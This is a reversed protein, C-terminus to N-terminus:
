RYEIQRMHEAVRRRQGHADVMHVVHRTWRGRADLEVEYEVAQPSDPCPGPADARSSTISTPLGSAHYRYENVCRVSPGRSEVQRVARGQADYETRTQTDQGRFQEARLVPHTPEPWQLLEDSNRVEFTRVWVNRYMGDKSMGTATITHIARRSDPYEITTTTRDVLDRSAVRVPRGKADYRTQSLQLPGRRVTARERTGDRRYQMRHVTDSDGHTEIREVERGAADYRWRTRQTAVGASRVEESLRGHPDYQRLLAPRDFGDEDVRVLRGLADHWYRWAHRQAREGRPERRLIATALRGADDFGLEVRQTSLASGDSPHILVEDHSVRRPELASLGLLTIQWQPDTFVDLPPDAAHACAASALAAAIIGKCGPRWARM